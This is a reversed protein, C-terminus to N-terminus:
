GYTQTAAAAAAGYVFSTHVCGPYCKLWSSSDTLLSNRLRKLRRLHVVIRLRRLCVVIRLMCYDEFAQSM